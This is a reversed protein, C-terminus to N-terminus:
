EEEQGHELNRLTKLINKKGFRKHRSTPNKKVDIHQRSETEKDLLLQYRKIIGIAKPHKLSFINARKFDDSNVAKVLAKETISKDKLIQTALRMQFQFTKKWPERNWFKYSLSGENNYEAKKKCMIEAVYAACTCYDGTSQHKYKSKETRKRKKSM